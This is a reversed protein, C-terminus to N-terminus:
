VKPHRTASSEYPAMNRRESVYIVVASGSPKQNLAGSCRAVPHAQAWTLCEVSPGRGLGALAPIQPRFETPGQRGNFGLKPSCSTQRCCPDRPIKVEFGCFKFHRQDRLWLVQPTGIPIKRSLVQSTWVPIMVVFDCFKLHGSRSTLPIKVVSIVFSSTDWGPAQPIQVVFGDLKLHGLRFRSPDQGSLWLM